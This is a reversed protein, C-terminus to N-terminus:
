KYMYRIKFSQLLTFIKLFTYYFSIFRFTLGGCVSYFNVIVSLVCSDLYANLTSAFPRSSYSRFFILGMESARKKFEGSTNHACGESKM